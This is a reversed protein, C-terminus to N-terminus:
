SFFIIFSIFFLDIKFTQRIESRKKSEDNAFLKPPKNSKKWAGKAKVVFIWSRKTVKKIIKHYVIRRTVISQSEGRRDAGIKKKREKEVHDHDESRKNKFLNNRSERKFNLLLFFLFFFFFVVFFYFSSMSINTM